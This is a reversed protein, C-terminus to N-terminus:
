ASSNVSGDSQMGELHQQCLVEIDAMNKLTADIDARKEMLVQRHEAIKDQLRRLQRVKNGQIPDYMEIIERCDDLSFGLRKGRLALRLRVRDRESYVRALGRRAPSLIGKDEYFRLTRTTVNFEGALESISYTKGL